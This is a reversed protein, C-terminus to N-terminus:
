AAGRTLAAWRQLQSGSGSRQAAKPRATGRPLCWNGGRYLLVGIPAGAEFDGMVRGGTGGWWTVEFLGVGEGSWVLRGELERVLAVM